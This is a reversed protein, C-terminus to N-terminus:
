IDATKAERPGFWAIFIAAAVALAAYAPRPPLLMDLLFTYFDNLSALYMGTLTWDQQSPYTAHIYIFRLLGGFSCFAVVFIFLAFLFRVVFGRKAAFNQVWWTVLAALAGAFGVIRLTHRTQENMFTNMYDGLLLAWMSVGIVVAFLIALVFGVVSGFTVKDM